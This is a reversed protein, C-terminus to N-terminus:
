IHVFKGVFAMTVSGLGLVPYVWPWSVYKAGEAIILGAVIVCLAWVVM